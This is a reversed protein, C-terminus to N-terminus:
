RKVCTSLEIDTVLKKQFELKFSELGVLQKIKDSYM